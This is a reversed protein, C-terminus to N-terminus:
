PLYHCGNQHGELCRQCPHPCPCSEQVPHRGGQAQGQMLNSSSASNCQPLICCGSIYSREKGPRTRTARTSYTYLYIVDPGFKTSRKEAQMGNNAVHSTYSGEFRQCCTSGLNGDVTPLRSTHKQHPNQDYYVLPVSSVSDKLRLLNGPLERLATPAHCLRRQIVSPTCDRSSLIM